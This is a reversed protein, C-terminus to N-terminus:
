TEVYGEGVKADGQIETTQECGTEQILYQELNKTELIDREAQCM